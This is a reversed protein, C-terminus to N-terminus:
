YDLDRGMRMIEVASSLGDITTPFIEFWICFWGGVGEIVADACTSFTV